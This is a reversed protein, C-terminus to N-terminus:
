CTGSRTPFTSPWRTLCPPCRCCSPGKEVPRCPGALERGRRGPRPGPLPFPRDVQVAMCPVVPCVCRDGCGGLAAAGQSGGLWRRGPWSVTRGSGSRSWLWPVGRPGDGARRESPRVRGTPHLQPRSPRYTGHSPDGGAQAETSRASGEPERPRMSSESSLAAQPGGTQGLARSCSYVLQRSGPRTCPCVSRAGQRSGAALGLSAPQGDGEAWAAGRPCPAGLLLPLRAVM